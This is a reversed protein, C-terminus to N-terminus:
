KDKGRLMPVFRVPIIDRSLIKGEKKKLQRLEQYEIGVPIVLRGGEALQELFVPPIEEPACTVIVADFPAYEPWGLFGDGQKIKINEYGLEKLLQRSGEALPKLLEISYAEKVLEALIAAQYGSGTGIELVKEEGKLELLETMLAVIYPQSITQGSGIPLPEDEYALNKQTLPVFLNREVKLMAKIVRQDSVGRAKIQSNIMSQNKM